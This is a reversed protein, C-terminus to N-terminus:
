IVILGSNLYVTFLVTVLLKENTKLKKWYLCEAAMITKVGAM